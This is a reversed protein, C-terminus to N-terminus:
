LVKMVAIEVATHAPNAHRGYLIPGKFEDFELRSKFSELGPAMVACFDVTIGSKITLNLLLGAAQRGSLGMKSNQILWNHLM